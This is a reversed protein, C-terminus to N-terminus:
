IEETYIRNSLLVFDEVSLNEARANTNINVENLIDTLKDKNIKLGNSLCNLLTKRRMSFAAKVVKFFTNKDIENLGSKEKINLKIVQSDVNPSPFFSSRNVEFQLEPESYYRVCATVASCNRTGMQACLRLAAEKQIMVTINKLNLESELLSMIIPSTLYYPLNACVVVEMDEFEKEILQKMDINNFDDFIIKVNDFECLSQELVNKLRKDIEICVVKKASKALQQTLVGAGPGIEIVGIGACDCIQAMRPCVTDDILFNQGLSKKFDFGNPELLKKLTKFDTLNLM